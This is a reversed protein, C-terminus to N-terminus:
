VIIEECVRGDRTVRENRKEIKLKKKKKLFFFFYFFKIKKSILIIIDKPLTSLISNKDRRALLVLIVKCQYEYLNYKMYERKISEYLNLYRKKTIFEYETNQFKDLFNNGDKIETYKYKRRNTKIYKGEKYKCFYTGFADDVDFYTLNNIIILMQGWLKNSFLLNIVVDEGLYNGFINIIVHKQKEKFTHINSDCGFCNECHSITVNSGVDYDIEKIIIDSDISQIIRRVEHSMTRFICQQIKCKLFNIELKIKKIQEKKNKIEDM